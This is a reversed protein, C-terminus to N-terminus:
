PNPSADEASAEANAKQIIKEPDVGRVYEPIAYLKELPLKMLTAEKLGDVQRAILRATERMQLDINTPDVKIREGTSTADIYDEVSMEKVVYTTGGLVLERADTVLVEDLNLVKKAM